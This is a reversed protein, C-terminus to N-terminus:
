IHHTLDFQFEATVVDMDMCLRMDTLINQMSM